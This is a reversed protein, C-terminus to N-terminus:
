KVDFDKLVDKEAVADSTQWWSSGTQIKTRTAGFVGNYDKEAGQTQYFTGAADQGKTGFFAGKMEVGNYHGAFRNGDIKGGFVLKSETGDKLEVRLKKNDFDAVAESELQKYEGDKGYFASGKYIYNKDTTLMRLSETEGEVGNQIYNFPSSLGATVPTAHGQVFLTTKGNITAYGYRVQTFEDGFRNKPLSGVKGSVTADSGQVMTQEIDKLLFDNNPQSRRSKIENSTILQLTIGDVVLQNLSQEKNLPKSTFVNGEVSLLSGSLPILGNEAESQVFGAQLTQVNTKVRETDKREAEARADEEAKQAAELEALKKVLVEKETRLKEAEKVAAEKAVEADALKQEAARKEAQAAALEATSASGQQLEILKVETDALKKQAETLKQEASSAKEEAEKQAKRAEEAKQNALVQAQNAQSDLYSNVSDKNSSCAGLILACTTALLSVKLNKM